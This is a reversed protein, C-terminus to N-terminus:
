APTSDAPPTQGIRPRKWFFPLAVMGVLCGAALALLPVNALAFLEPAPTIFDVWQEDGPPGELHFFAAPV